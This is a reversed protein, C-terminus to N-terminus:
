VEDRIRIKKWGPDQIRMLSNSYTPGFITELSESIHDPKSMGYGSGSKKGMRSGPDLPLFAASGPDAVSAKFDKVLFKRIRIWCQDTALHQLIMSFFSCKTM